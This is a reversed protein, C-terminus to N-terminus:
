EFRGEFSEEDEESEWGHKEDACTCEELPQGKRLCDQAQCVGPM